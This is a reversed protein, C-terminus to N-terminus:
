QAGPVSLSVYETVSPSIQFFM